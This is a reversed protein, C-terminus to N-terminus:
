LAAEGDSFRAKIHNGEGWRRLILWAVAPDLQQQKPQQPAPMTTRYAMLSCRFAITESAAIEVATAAVRGYPLLTNARGFHQSAEGPAPEPTAKALYNLSDEHPRHVRGEGHHEGRKKAYARCERCRAM